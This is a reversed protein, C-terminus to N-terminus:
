ENNLGKIKGLRKIPHGGIYPVGNIWAILRGSIRSYNQGTM